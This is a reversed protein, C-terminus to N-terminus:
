NQREKTVCSVFQLPFYSFKLVLFMYQKILKEWTKKKYKIYTKVYKSCFKVFQHSAHKALLLKVKEPGNHYKKIDLIHCMDAM